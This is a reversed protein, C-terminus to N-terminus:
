SSSRLSLVQAVTEEQLLTAPRLGAVKNFFLSQCDVFFTSAPKVMVLYNSRLRSFLKVNLKLKVRLIPLSKYINESSVM